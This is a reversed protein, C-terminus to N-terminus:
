RHLLRDYWPTHKSCVDGSNIDTCSCPYLRLRGLVANEIYIEIFHGTWFNIQLFRPFTKYEGRPLILPM